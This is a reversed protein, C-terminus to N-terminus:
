SCAGEVWVWGPNDLACVAVRGDPHEFGQVSSDDRADADAGFVSAYLLDHADTWTYFCWEPTLENIAAATQHRLVTLDRTEHDSM